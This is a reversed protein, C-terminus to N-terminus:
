GCAAIARALLQPDVEWWRQLNLLYQRLELSAFAEAAEVALVGVCDSRLETKLADIARPDKRRALGLLAEGRTDGHPDAIRDFLADRIQLTDTEFLTGLTFTAWDRVDDDVDRSLHILSTIADPCEASGLALVVAHRVAPDSHDSFRTVLTIADACNQFSLAIMISALVQADEEGSLMRCLIDTCEVPFTRDPVGLQGLIDAALRRERACYSTALRQARELVEETGRFHLVVVAQWALEDNRESLAFDVLEETSKADDCFEPQGSM